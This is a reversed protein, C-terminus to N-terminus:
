ATRPVLPADVTHIVAKCVKINSPRVITAEEGPRGDSEVTIEHSLGLRTPQVQVTLKTAPPVPDLTDLDKPTNSTTFDWTFFPKGQNTTSSITSAVFQLVCCLCCPHM